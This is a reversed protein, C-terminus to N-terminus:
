NWSRIAVSKAYDTMAKLKLTRSILEERTKIDSRAMDDQFKLLAYASDIEGDIKSPSQGFGAAQIATSTFSLALLISVAIPKIRKNLMM